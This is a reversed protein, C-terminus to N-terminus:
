LDRVLSAKIVCFPDGEKAHIQTQLGATAPSITERDLSPATCTGGTCTGGASFLDLSLDPPATNELFVQSNEIITNVFGGGNAIDGDDLTSNIVEDVTATYTDFIDFGPPCRDSDDVKAGFGYTKTIGGLRGPASTLQIAKNFVGSNESFLGFVVTPANPDTLGDDVTTCDLFKITENCLTGSGDSHLSDPKRDGFNNSINDAFLYFQYPIQLIAFSVDGACDFNSGTVGTKQLYNLFCRYEFIKRVRITDRGQSVEQITLKLTADTEDDPDALKIRVRSTAAQNKINRVRVFIMSEIVAPDVSPVACRIFNGSNDFETSGEESILEGAGGSDTSFDCVCNRASLGCVGLFSTQSGERGIVQTAATSVTERVGVSVEFNDIGNNPNRPNAINGDPNLVKIETSCSLATLFVIVHGCLLMTGIARYIRNRQDKSM